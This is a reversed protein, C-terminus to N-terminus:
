RIGSWNIEPYEAKVEDLIWHDFLKIVTGNPYDPHDYSKSVYIYDNYAKTGPIVIMGADTKIIVSGLSESEAM